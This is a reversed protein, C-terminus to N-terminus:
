NKKSKSRKITRKPRRRKTQKSKKQMKKSKKSRNKQTKKRNGGGGKENKQAKSSTDMDIDMLQKVDNEIDEIIKNVADKIDNDSMIYQESTSEESVISQQEVDEKMKEALIIIENGVDEKMKEALIIIENGVDKPTINSNTDEIAIFGISSSRSLPQSYGINENFSDTTDNNTSQELSAIVAEANKRLKELSVLDDKFSEEYIYSEEQQGVTDVFKKIKENLASAVYFIQEMKSPHNKPIEGSPQLREQVKLMMKLRPVLTEIYDMKTLIRALKVDLGEQILQTKLIRQQETNLGLSDIDEQSPMKFNPIFKQILIKSNSAIAFLKLLIPKMNHYQDQIKTGQGIANNIAVIKDTSKQIDNYKQIFNNLEQLYTILKVFNQKTTSNTLQFQSSESSVYPYFVKKINEFLETIFDFITGESALLEDYCSSLDSDNTTESGLSILSVSKTSHYDSQKSESATRKRLQSEETKLSSEETNMFSAM